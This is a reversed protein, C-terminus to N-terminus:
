LNAYFDDLEDDTLEAYGHQIAVADMGDGYGREYPTPRLQYICAMYTSRIELYRALTHEGTGAPLTLITGDRVGAAYGEHYEPADLVLRHIRQGLRSIETALRLLTYDGTAHFYRNGEADLAAVAAALRSFLPRWHHDALWEVDPAHAPITETTM